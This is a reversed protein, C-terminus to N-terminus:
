SFSHVSGSRPSTAEWSNNAVKESVSTDLRL